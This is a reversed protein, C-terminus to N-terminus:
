TVWLTKRHFSMKQSWHLFYFFTVSIAIKPAGIKEVCDMFFIKKECFKTFSCLIDLYVVLYKGKKYIKFYAKQDTPTDVVM